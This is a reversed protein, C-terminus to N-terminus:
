SSRCGSLRPRRAISRAPRYGRRRDSEARLARATAEGSDYSAYTQASYVCHEIPRSDATMSHSQVVPTSAPATAQITIPLGVPRPMAAALASRAGPWEGGPFVGIGPTAIRRASFDHRSIIGISFSVHRATRPETELVCRVRRGRQLFGMRSHAAVSRADGRSPAPRRDM